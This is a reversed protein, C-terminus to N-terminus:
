IFRSAFKILEGELERKEKLVEVHHLDKRIKIYEDHDWDYLYDQRLDAGKSNLLPASLTTHIVQCTNDAFWFYVYCLGNYLEDM